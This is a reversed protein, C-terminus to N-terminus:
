YICFLLLIFLGKGNNNFVCSDYLQKATVTGNGGCIGEGNAKGRFRFAYMLFKLLRFSFKWESTHIEM